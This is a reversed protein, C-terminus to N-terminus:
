RRAKSQILRALAAGQHLSAVVTNMAERELKNLRKTTAFLNVRTAVDTLVSALDDIYLSRPAAPSLFYEIPKGTRRAILELVIPSPRARGHEVLHIFTRSVDDGALQAL